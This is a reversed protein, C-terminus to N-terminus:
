HPFRRFPWRNRILHYYRYGLYFSLGDGIIAGLIGFLITTFAPIIQAGVLTGVASMIVTGPILLGLFALSEGFAIFFAASVALNPHARLWAIFPQLDVHSV